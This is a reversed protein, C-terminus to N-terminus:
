FSKRHGGAILSLRDNLMNMVVNIPIHKWFTRGSQPWVHEADSM